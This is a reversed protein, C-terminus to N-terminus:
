HSTNSINLSPTPQSEYYCNLRATLNSLFNNPPSQKSPNFFNQKLEQQFIEKHPIMIAQISSIHRQNEESPDM